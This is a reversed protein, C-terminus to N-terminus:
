MVTLAFLSSFSKVSVKDLGICTESAPTLHLFSLLPAHEVGGKSHFRHPMLRATRAYCETTRSQTRDRPPASCSLVLAKAAARYSDHHAHMPDGQLPLFQAPTLASLGFREIGTFDRLNFAILQGQNRLCLALNRTHWWTLM